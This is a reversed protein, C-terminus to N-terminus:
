PWVKKSPCAPALLELPFFARPMGFVYPMVQYQQFNVWLGNAAVELCEYNDREPKFGEEFWVLNAVDEETGFDEPNHEKLNEIVLRKANQSFIELAKGPEKFLHELKLEQGTAVDFNMATKVGSPHAAGKPYTYAEFVVGVVVPSPHNVAYDLWYEWSGEPFDPDVVTKADAVSKNLDSEVWERIKADIIPLGLEPYNADVTWAYKFGLKKAAGDKGDADDAEGGWGTAATAVVLAAICAAKWIRM